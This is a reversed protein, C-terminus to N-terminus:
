SPASLKKDHINIVNNKDDKKYTYEPVLKKLYQRIDEDEGQSVVKEFIELHHVLHNLDSFLPKDVFIKSHATQTINEESILLEEYLKEGPRLGIIQIDIDEYPILGSLRILDEALNIIRVPEGMDLIFVEGGKAMAGAELVLQSAEPITM